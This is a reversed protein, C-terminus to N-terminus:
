MLEYKVGSGKKRKSSNSSGLEIGVCCSPSNKSPAKQGDMLMSSHASLEFLLSALSAESPTSHLMLDISVLFRDSAFTFVPQFGRSHFTQGGTVQTELHPPPTKQFMFALMYLMFVFAVLNFAKSGFHIEISSHLDM